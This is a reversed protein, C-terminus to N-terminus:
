SVCGGRPGRARRVPQADVRRAQALLRPLADVRRRRRPDRRRPVRAGLVARQRRPLQAGRQARLQLDADGVRPAIRAAPRRARVARHRRLARAGVRRAPLARAGLRPDRRDRPRADPRRLPPLRRALRLAAHARLVVDGSLGLVGLVPPGHDAHARRAHLRPGVRVRRARRRARRLEALPQGGAPEAAVVRPAGRLGVDPPGAAPRGQARGHVRRRDVRVDLPHRDVGDAAAARDRVRVPRGEAAAGREAPPDRVQLARGRGRRPHLAGLDGLRRARADPAAPGGLLQLRRRRRRVERGAGLRRVVDGRRRRDRARARGDEDM